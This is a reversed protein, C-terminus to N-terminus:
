WKEGIKVLAERAIQRSAEGALPRGCDKRGCAIQRLAALVADAAGISAVPGSACSQLFRPIGLTDDHEM